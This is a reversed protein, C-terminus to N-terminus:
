YIAKLGREVARSDTLNSCVVNVGNAYLFGTNGNTDPTNRKYVSIQACRSGNVTFWGSQYMTTNANYSSGTLPVTVGACMISIAGPNTTYTFANHAGNDWYLACELSSDAAYFAYQSERAASSLILNKYALTTLTMTIAAAVSSLVLAIILAFGRHQPNFGIM